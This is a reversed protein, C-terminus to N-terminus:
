LKQTPERRHPQYSCCCFGSHPLLWVVLMSTVYVKGCVVFSCCVVVVVIGRLGCREQVKRGNQNAKKQQAYVLWGSRRLWVGLM